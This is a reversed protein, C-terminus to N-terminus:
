WLVVLPNPSLVNRDITARLEGQRSGQVAVIRYAGQRPNSIYFYGQRDATVRYAVSNGSYFTLQCQQPVRDRNVVQGRIQQQARGAAASVVILLLVFVVRRMARCGRSITAHLTVTHSM